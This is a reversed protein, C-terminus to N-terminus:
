KLHEPCTRVWIVETGQYKSYPNHCQELGNNAMEINFKREEASSYELTYACFVIFTFFSIISILIIKM